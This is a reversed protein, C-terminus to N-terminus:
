SQIGGKVNFNCYNFKMNESFRFELVGCGLDNNYDECIWADNHHIVGLKMNYIGTPLAAATVASEGGKKRM